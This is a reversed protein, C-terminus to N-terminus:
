SSRPTGPSLTKIELANGTAKVLAVWNQAVDREADIRSVVANNYSRRADELEFLSMRGARYSAESGVLLQKAATLADKSLQDRAEANALTVLVNEIDQTTSRVTSDLQAISQEYRARAVRANAKAAGGDFLSGTLSGGLSWSDSNTTRGLARIWSQGLLASLNLSPYRAAEASGIDEFAADASRLAARVNPHQLLVTAPVALESKPPAAIIRANEITPNAAFAKDIRAMTWGSLNVLTNKLQACQAEANAVQTASDIAASKARATEIPAVQGVSERLATLRLTENRSRADEKRSALKANCARLAFASDVVQAELALRSNEADSERAALRQNAAAANHRLRGFLDIEWSLSMTASLSTQMSGTASQNNGRKGSADGSLRPGSNADIQDLSARAEAVRALALAITPSHLQADAVLDNLQADNFVRWWATAANIRVNDFTSLAVNNAAKSNWRTQALTPKTDAAPQLACGSLQILGVTIVAFAAPSFCFCSRWNIGLSIHLYAIKNIKGIFM